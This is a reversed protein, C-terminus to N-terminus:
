EKEGREIYYSDGPTIEFKLRLGKTFYERAGAELTDVVQYSDGDYLSITLTGTNSICRSDRLAQFSYEFTDTFRQKAM